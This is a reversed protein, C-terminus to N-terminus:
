PTTEILKKIEPIIIAFPSRQEIIVRGYIWTGPSLRFLELPSQKNQNREIAIRTSIPPSSETFKKVLDENQLTSTLSRVTEPYPSVEIVKGEIYGVHEKELHTPIMYVRMGVKVEKGELPNLYILAELQQDDGQSITVIPDNAGVSDGVKHHISIVKGQLPSRITKTADQRSKLNDLDREEDALKLAIERERQEWSEQDVLFEKEIQALQERTHVDEAKLANIQNELDLINQQKTYGKKLLWQEKELREELHKKYAAKTILSETLLQKQKEYNAKKEEISKAADAAIDDRKKKLDEVYSTRVAISKTLESNDLLAIVQDKQVIQGTKVTLEKITNLGEPSAVTKFIGGKPILIGQGQLTIPISGYFLWGLALIMICAFMGILIWTGTGVVSIVKNVDNPTSIYALAEDRFIPQSEIQQKVETNEQSPQAM